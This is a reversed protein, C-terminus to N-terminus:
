TSFVTLSILKFNLSQSMPVTDVPLNETCVVTLSLTSIWFFFVAQEIMMSDLMRFTENSNKVTFLNIYNNM